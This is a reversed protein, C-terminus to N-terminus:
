ATSLTGPCSRRYTFPRPWPSTSTSPLTPAPRCCMTIASAGPTNSVECLIAALQGDAEYCYFFSVPNFALGWSRVQTLLCIKGSPVHGTAAAVQQRVVDILGMGQGTFAPLYDGQRFAFPAFRSRGALPSLSLVADQEELDLYLLGIRYRFAHGKPAFRRHSIWGSYLASNM